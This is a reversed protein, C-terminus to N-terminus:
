TSGLRFAISFRKHDAAARIEGRHYQAVRKCISLGLGSGTSTRAEGSPTSGSRFPNFIDDTVNRPDGSWRNSVVFWTESEREEATVALDLPESGHRVANEILNRLLVAMLDPYCVVENPLDVRATPTATGPESLEALIQNTLHNPDITTLEDHQIGLRTLSRFGAIMAEMARGQDAIKELDRRLAPPVDDGFVELAHDILMQQRRVPERLDHAAIHAFHDLDENALRVRETAVVEEHVDQITGAIRAPQDDSRRTVKGQGRVWRYRGAKTRLRYTLDFPKGTSLRDDVAARLRGRDDPHLLADFGSVTPELEGPEFGLITQFRENWYVYKDDVYPWDWIGVGAGDAVLQFRENAAEIEAKHRAEATVDVALLIAGGVSGDDHSWRAAHVDHVATPDGLGSVRVTSHDGVQLAKDILPDIDALDPYRESFFVDSRDGPPGALEDWMPSSSVVRQRVDLAVVALPLVESLERLLRSLVKAQNHPANAVLQPDTLRRCVGVSYAVEDHHERDQDHHGFIPSKITQFRQVNGHYDTIAEEPVEVHARSEFVLADDRVYQLTDDPDSQPGDVLGRLEDSTMGYYDLFAQNAWLLRSSPGKILVLDRMSNLASELLSLEELGSETAKM